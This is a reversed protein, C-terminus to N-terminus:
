KFKKFIPTKSNWWMLLRRGAETSTDKDVIMVASLEHPHEDQSPSGFFARWSAPPEVLVEKRVTDWWITGSGRLTPMKPNTYVPV